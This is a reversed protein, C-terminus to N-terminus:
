RLFGQNLIRFVGTHLFMFVFDRIKDGFPRLKRTYDFIVRFRLKRFVTNKAYWIM